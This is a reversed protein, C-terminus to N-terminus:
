EGHLEKWRDDARRDEYWERSDYYDMENEGYFPRIKNDILETCIRYKFNKMGPPLDAVRWFLQYDRYDPALGVDYFYEAAFVDMFKHEEWNWLCLGPYCEFDWKATYTNYRYYQEIVEYVTDDYDISDPYDPFTHWRNYSNANGM